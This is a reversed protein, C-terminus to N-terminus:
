LGFAITPAGHIGSVVRAEGEEGCGAAVYIPIFHEERPNAPRFGPHSVLEMMAKRRAEPNVTGAANVVAKHWEKYIPKATSETFASFDRFTHITLGGSLILIGESRLEDLAKGVEWNKEPSMSEDISVQVVPIDFSDGFMLKFPVFVGHDLGPGSFGRGDSGRPEHQKVTRALMNHKKFMNVIKQSLTADGRSEFQVQYLEPPFGFYDMLLPNNDGYDTVQREGSTEWHASFVVVGKPKYKDLLAPGFDRLFNGLPGKPGASSFLDRNSPQINDPWILMPQGHGFYFAPIKGGAPVSPLAALAQRWQEPTQPSQVATTM